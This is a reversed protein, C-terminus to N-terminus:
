DPRGAPGGIWGAAAAVIGDPSDAVDFVRGAEDDDLEELTDFQSRLLTPPMFHEPELRARLALRESMLEFTGHLHVFVADPAAARIRDRYKRKLASCAIVGGGDALWRGVLELWPARDDDDLPTGSAMKDINAQPHLEDGDKFPVGLRAALMMGVTSKGCGSVGM